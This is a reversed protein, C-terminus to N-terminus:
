RGAYRQARCREAHAQAWERATQIHPLVATAVDHRNTDLPVPEVFSEGSSPDACGHGMCQAAAGVAVTRQRDGLVNREFKALAKTEVTAGGVTTYRGVVEALRYHESSYQGGLQRVHADILDTVVDTPDPPAPTYVM